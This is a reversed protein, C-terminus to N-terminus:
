LVTSAGLAPLLGPCTESGPGEARVAAWRASPLTVFGFALFPRFGRGSM